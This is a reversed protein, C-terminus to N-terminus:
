YEGIDPFIVVTIIFQKTQVLITICGYAGWGTGMRVECTRLITYYAGVYASERLARPLGM